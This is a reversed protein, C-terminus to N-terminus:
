ATPRPSAPGAAPQQQAAGRAEVQVADALVLLALRQALHVPPRGCPASRQHDLLELVRGVVLDRHEEVRVLLGHDGLGEVHLHARRARDQARVDSRPRRESSVIVEDGGADLWTADNSPSHRSASSSSAAASGVPM